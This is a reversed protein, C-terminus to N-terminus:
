GTGRPRAIGHRQVWGCGTQVVETAEEWRSRDTGRVAVM